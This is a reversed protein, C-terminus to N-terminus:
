RPYLQTEPVIERRRSPGSWLLRAVAGGGNEYWEMKIEYLEGAVLDISGSDLTPAHDTWNEIVLEGNVWLRVGDDTVTNFTHTETLLPQIRGTWRISFTDPEIEPAPSGTQWDFDIRPDTRRVALGTFDKEDFYEGKLGTGTGPVTHAFPRETGPPVPNPLSAADTVNEVALRYRKGIELPSTRLVVTRRDPAVGAAHVEVGEDISYNSVTGASTEDVPRSFTVNVRDAPGHADVWVVGLPLRPVLGEIPRGNLDAIRASAVSRGHEESLKVLLDNLGRVLHVPYTFEDRRFRESSAAPELREGNLWVACAGRCGLMILVKRRLPSHFRTYLYAVPWEAGAGGLNAGVDVFEPTTVADRWVARGGGSADHELSLDVPFREPPLAAALGRLVGTAEIYGLLQWHRISQVYTRYFLRRQDRGLKIEDMLAECREVAATRDPPGDGAHALEIGAPVPGAPARPRRRTRECARAIEDPPLAEGYIRVEDLKGSYKTFGDPRRGITLIGEGRTRRKGVPRAAVPEGDLYLRLDKGDYTM